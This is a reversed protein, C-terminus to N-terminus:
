QQVRKRARKVAKVGRDTTAQARWALSPRGETDQSALLVSGALAVDALFGQLQEQKQEPDKATWFAHRALTQPAVTGALVLAGLRRAKGSALAIGGVIQAIGNARVLTVTDTPVFEFVQPPAVKQVLPVVTDALPQTAPVLEQPERVTKIGNYVFYSALMTRAVTRLLSM